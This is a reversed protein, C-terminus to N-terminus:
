PAVYVPQNRVLASCQDGNVYSVRQVNAASYTGAIGAAVYKLADLGGIVSPDQAATKFANLVDLKAGTTRSPINFSVVGEM